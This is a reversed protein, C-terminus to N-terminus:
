KTSFPQSILSSGQRLSWWRHGNLYVLGNYLHGDVMEPPLHIDEGCHCQIWLVRFGDQGERHEIGRERTIRPMAPGSAAHECTPLALDLSAGGRRHM